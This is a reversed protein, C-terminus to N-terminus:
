YGVSKLYQFSESVDQLSTGSNRPDREQEITIWGQYNIEKLLKNINSYDVIGKGIPCMVGQACADFFDLEVAMVKNYEEKNIDKFHIYDLREANDRIWQVPDMGSYYLHGTDLCIGAINYPIDELVQKIEDEFEIYGGAHPHIVARVGYSDWSLKAIARINDMMEGWQKKSLRPAKDYHGAVMSREKHGFDIVTLYPTPYHQNKEKPVLPLQTILSCIDKTIKLLNDRNEVSLLDEFITGAVIILDNKDLEAKVENTNLPLYGYPGLEIGKYGAQAAERLVLKWDPLYPNNPDDVGWCCPGIAVKISM